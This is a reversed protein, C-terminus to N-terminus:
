FAFDERLACPICFDDLIESRLWSIEDDGFGSVAAEGARREIRLKAHAADLIKEEGSDGRIDADFGGQAVGVKM